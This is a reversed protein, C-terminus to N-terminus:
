VRWTRRDGVCCRRLQQVPFANFSISSVEIKASTGETETSSGELKVSAGEIKDSAEEVLM